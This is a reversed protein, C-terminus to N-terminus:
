IANMVANIMALKNEFDATWYIFSKMYRKVHNNEHSTISIKSEIFLLIDSFWNKVNLGSHSITILLSHSKQIVCQFSLETFLNSFVTKSRCVKELSIHWHVTIHCTIDIANLPRCSTHFKKKFNWCIFIIWYLVIWRLDKNFISM